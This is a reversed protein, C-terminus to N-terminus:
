HERAERGEHILRSLRWEEEKSLLPYKGIADLYLRVLDEDPGDKDHTSAMAERPAM